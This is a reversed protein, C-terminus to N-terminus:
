KTKQILRYFVFLGLVTLSGVYLQTSFNMKYNEEQEKSDMTKNNNKENNMIDDNDSADKKVIIFDNRDGPKISIPILPSENETYKSEVSLNGSKFLDVSAEPVKKEGKMNSCGCDGKDSTLPRNALAINTSNNVEKFKPNDM